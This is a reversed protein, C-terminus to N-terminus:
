FSKSPPFPGGNGPTGDALRDHYSGKFGLETVGLYWSLAMLVEFEPEDIIEQTTELIGTKSKPNVELFMKAWSEGQDDVLEFEKASLVKWAFQNRDSNMSFTGGKRFGVRYVAEVTETGTNRAEITTRIVGVQKLLWNNYATEVEVGADTWHMVAAVENFDLVLECGENPSTPQVWNFVVNEVPM